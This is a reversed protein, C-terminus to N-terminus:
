IMIVLKPNDYIISGHINSTCMNIRVYIAIEKPNIVLLTIAQYFMTNIKHSVAVNSKLITTKNQMAMLLTYLAM